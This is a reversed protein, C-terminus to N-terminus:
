KLRTTSIADRFLPEYKAFEEPDARFTVVLVDEGRTIYLALTSYSIDEQVVTEIAERGAITRATVVPPALARWAAEARDLQERLHGGNVNDGWRYMAAMRLAADQKEKVQKLVGQVYDGLSKGKLPFVKVDGWAKHPERDNFFFTGQPSPRYDGSALSEGRQWGPPLQISFEEETLRSTQAGPRGEARGAAGSQAEETPKSTQAGRGCGSRVVLVLALVFVALVVAKRGAAM